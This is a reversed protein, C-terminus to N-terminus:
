KIYEYGLFFVGWAVVSYSIYPVLGVFLGVVGEDKLIRICTAIMGKVEESNKSEDVIQRIKINELPFLALASFGAGLAGSLGKILIKRGESINPLNVPTVSKTKIAQLTDIRLM